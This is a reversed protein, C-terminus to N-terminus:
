VHSIYDVALLSSKSFNYVRQLEQVGKVQVIHIMLSFNENEILDCLPVKYICLPVQYISIYIYIPASSIYMPASLNSALAM